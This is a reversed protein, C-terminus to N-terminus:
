NHAMFITIGVLIGTVNLGLKRMWIRLDYFTWIGPGLANGEFLYIM